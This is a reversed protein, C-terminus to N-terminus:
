KANDLIMTKKGNDNGNGNPTWWYNHFIWLEGVIVIVTNTVVVTDIVVVTVTGGPPDWM